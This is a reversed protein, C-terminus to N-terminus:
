RVCLIEVRRNQARGANTANSAAPQSEGFGNIKQVKAGANEAVDAVAQARKKSLEINAGASGRSDTHGSIIFAVATEDTFYSRLRTRADNGISTQGSAFLQDGGFIACSTIRGSRGCVPKGNPLVNPTMFGEIGDDIVWHECGDPDIWVGPIIRESQAPVMSAALSILTASVVGAFCKFNM